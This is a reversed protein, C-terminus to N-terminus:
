PLRRWVDRIWGLHDFACHGVGPQVTTDIPFGLARYAANGAEIDPVLEDAEGYNAYLVTPGISVPTVEWAFPAWPAMGGCGLALPGPVEDGHRPLFSAQLFVSGGSSGGLLTIDTRLDFAARLADIVALLADANEGELDRDASTIAGDCSPLSPRLWWACGNPALATVYLVDATRTWVAQVRVDTDGTYARAGDGHLYLALRLPRTSATPEVIKMEVSGVRAVCYPIGNTSGSRICSLGGSGGSSPPPGADLEGGDLEGADLEGADLTAADLDAPPAGCACLFSLLLVPSVRCSM